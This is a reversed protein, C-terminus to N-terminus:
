EATSGVHHHFGTVYILFVVLTQVLETRTTVPPSPADASWALGHHFAQVHPDAAVSYDNEYHLEVYAQVFTQVVRRYAERDRGFSWLEHPRVEATHVFLARNKDFALRIGQALGQGTLALARHLIGGDVLTSTAGLNIEFTGITHVMLLRSLPHDSPLGMTSTALRNAMMFHVGVLHDKLTM